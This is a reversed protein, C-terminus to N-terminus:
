GLEDAPYLFLKQNTKYENGSIYEVRGKALSSSILKLEDLYTRPIKGFKIWNIRFYAFLIIPSRSDTFYFRSLSIGILSFFAVGMLWPLLLLLQILLSYREMGGATIADLSYPILYFVALGSMVVAISFVYLKMAIGTTLQIFGFPEYSRRKNSYLNRVDIPPFMNLKGLKLFLPLIFQHIFIFQNILTKFISRDSSSFIYKLDGRVIEVYYSLANQEEFFRENFSKPRSCSNLILGAGSLHSNKLIFIAKSILYEFFQKHPFQLNTSGAAPDAILLGSACIESAIIQIRDERKSDKFRNEFDAASKALEPSTGKSKLAQFLTDYSDRVMNEIESRPITNKLGLGSMRWAVCITLLERLPKALLLYQSGVPTDYKKRATELEAEKRAFVAQIYKEILVAGTLLDGSQQLELIDNWITAVVPLMSPRSVIESFEANTEISARIGNIVTDDYARCANLIQEHTLKRIRWVESYLDGGIKRAVQVRLTRNAEAEDIFFNPRGTFIVKTGPYALRWLQNFHEYRYFELGANRLEDFGEYILLAEGSRILNYLQKPSIRYRACWSALFSLHDQESPSQGRLEILLPVRENLAETGLRQHEMFRKAWDYCYKLLATSKGQGFDGTIVIQKNSADSLWLSLNQDISKPTKDGGEIIVDLEVYTDCLNVGTGGVKSCEFTDILAMAYYTLDLGMRILEKSSFVKVHKNDVLIENISVNNRTSMYIAYIEFNDCSDYVRGILDLRQKVSIDNPASEFILVLVDKISSSRLTFKKGVWLGSEKRWGDDSIKIEPMAEILMDKLLVHYSESRPAELSTREFSTKSGVVPDSKLRVLFKLDQYCLLFLNDQLGQEILTIESERTPSEWNQLAFKGFKYILAIVFITLVAISVMSLIASGVFQEIQSSEPNPFLRELVFLTISPVLASSGALFCTVLASVVATAFRAKAAKQWLKMWVAVGICVISSISFIIAMLM